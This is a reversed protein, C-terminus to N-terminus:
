VWEPRRREAAEVILETLADAVYQKKYRCFTTLTSDFRGNEFWKNAPAGGGCVPFYSCSQRCAAVGQQIDANLRAFAPNEYIREIDLTRINGFLFDDYAPAKHGILEPSFTSLNGDVDINIISLPINEASKVAEDFLGGILVGVGQSLERVRMRHGDQEIRYFFRRLFEIFAERTSGDFSSTTYDGEAEDVNFGLESVGLGAFFDYMQDPYPMSDATLVCIVSFPVGHSRLIQAGHLTKALSPGGTRTVRMKDHLEAPGDISLGVSAGSERFFEAYEETVLMGNTQFSHVVKLEPASEKILRFAEAYYSPPLVLPEGAHWLVTLRDGLLDARTLKQFLIPIMGLDFKRKSDREPLYCYKCFINCFTTPQLMVLELPTVEGNKLTGRYWRRIPVRTRVSM